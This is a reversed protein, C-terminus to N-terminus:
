RETEILARLEETRMRTLRAKCTSVLLPELSGGRAYYGEVRCHADRYRLWGRQSELLSEFYGERTDYENAGYAAFDADRAKMAAATIPWQANLREDAVEFDRAACSNMEQQHRPDECNWSPVPPEASQMLLPLLLSAIM